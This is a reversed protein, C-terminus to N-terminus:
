RGIVTRPASGPGTGEAVTPAALDVDEADPIAVGVMMNRGEPNTAAGACDYGREEAYPGVIGAQGFIMKM